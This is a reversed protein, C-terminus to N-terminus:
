GERTVSFGRLRLANTVVSVSSLAMALSALIPSLLWGTVPYFVGAAVPVGVVNYAFAFFLNQRVTRMTARSLDIAAPVGRLDGRVLTVDAAEIAVDTGGGMAIGVDAQALAPADNIGDGVMAVTHGEGQLALVADAKGAPLVDAVVREIGVERAVEYYVGVPGHGGHPGASAFWGPAVTAAVSYSYASLTGIAVLTNMDAARHRAARWAGALFDWGAWFLVPTTLLLEAWPRAPFDFVPELAPVLHGAMALVAVPATLVAAVIFRGRVRRYEAEQAQTAADEVDEHRGSESLLADYGQGQVAARLGQPTVAGPDFTVTARATAFNVGARRVGPTEGLAREVRSACAACHMGVVPLDLTSETPAGAKRDADTAIANV